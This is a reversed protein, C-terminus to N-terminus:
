FASAFCSMARTPYKAGVVVSTVRQVFKWGPVATNDATHESNSEYPTEPAVISTSYKLVRDVPASLVFYAIYRPTPSLPMTSEAAVIDVERLNTGSRRCGGRPSEVGELLCGHPEVYNTPQGSAVGHALPTM